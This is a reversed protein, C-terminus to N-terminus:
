VTASSCSGRVCASSAGRNVELATFFLTGATKITTGDDIAEELVLAMREKSKEGTGSGDVVTIGPTRDRAIQQDDPLLRPDIGETSEQTEHDGSASTAPVRETISPSSPGIEVESLRTTATDGIDKHATSARLEGNPLTISLAEHHTAAGQRTGQEDSSSTSAARDRGEGVLFKAIEGSPKSAM